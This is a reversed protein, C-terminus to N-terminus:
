RPKKDSKKIKKERRRIMNIRRETIISIKDVSTDVHEYHLKRKIFIGNRKITLYEFKAEHDASRFYDLARDLVEMTPVNM